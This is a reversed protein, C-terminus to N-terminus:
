FPKLGVSDCRQMFLVDNMSRIGFYLAIGLAMVLDDKRGPSKGTLAVKYNLQTGNEDVPVVVERRFSSLQLLLEGFSEYFKTGIPREAVKMTSINRQLEMAYGEKTDKTTSIGYRQSGAKSERMVDVPAYSPHSLQNKVRAADIYSLNSEVMVRIYSKAYLPHARIDRFHKDIM